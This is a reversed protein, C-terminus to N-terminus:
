RQSAYYQNLEDRTWPRGTAPNIENGKMPGSTPFPYNQGINAPMLAGLIGMGGKAAPAASRAAQAAPQLLRDMAMQRVSQTIEAPASATASPGPAVPGTPTPGRLAQAQQSLQVQAAPATPAASPASGPMGGFGPRNMLRSERAAEVATKERMAGAIDRGVDTINKGFKYLGYGAGGVAATGIAPLAYQSAGAAMTTAMEGLDFEQTPVTGAPPPPPPETGGTQAPQQNKKSLYEDIEADTYGAAKAAARDFAM